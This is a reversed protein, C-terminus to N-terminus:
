LASLPQKKKRLSPNTHRNYIDPPHPSQKKSSKRAVKIYIGGERARATQALGLPLFLALSIPSQASPTKSRLRPHM